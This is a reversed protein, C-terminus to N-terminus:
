LLVVISVIFGTFTPFWTGVFIRGQSAVITDVMGLLNPDLENLGGADSFESLFRLNYHKALPEFFTKDKEDTM